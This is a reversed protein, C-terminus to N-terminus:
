LHYLTLCPTTDTLISGGFPTSQSIGGQNSLPVFCKKYVEGQYIRKLIVLSLESFEGGFYYDSHISIIVYKWLWLNQFYSKWSCILLSAILFKNKSLQHHTHVHRTTSSTLDKVIGWIGCSFHESVLQQLPLQLFIWSVWVGLVYISLFVVILTSTPYNKIPEFILFEWADVHLLWDSYDFHKCIYRKCERVVFNRGMAEAFVFHCENWM